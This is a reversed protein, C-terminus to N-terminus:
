LTGFGVRRANQQGIEIYGVAEAPILVQHGRSDTLELVSKDLIATKFRSKLEEPSEDLDVVVERGLNQVGIKIEM